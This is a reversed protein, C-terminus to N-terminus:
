LQRKRKAQNGLFWTEFVVFVLYFIFFPVLFFKDGPENLQVYILIFIFCALLKFFTNAVIISLFAGQKKSLLSREAFFYILFSFLSFFLISQLAMDIYNWLDLLTSALVYLLLGALITLTLAKLFSKFSM